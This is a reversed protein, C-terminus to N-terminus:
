VAKSKRRALPWELSREVGAAKNRGRRTVAEDPESNESESESLFAPRRLRSAQLFHAPSPRAAPSQMRTDRRKYQEQNIDVRAPLSPFVAVKLSSLHQVAHESFLNREEEQCEHWGPSRYLTTIRTGRLELACLLPWKQLWEVALGTLRTCRALKWVRLRWPGRLEGDSGVMLTQSLAQVGAHTIGTSGTDLVCLNELMGLQRLSSDDLNRSGNLNLNIVLCFSPTAPCRSLELVNSDSLALYPYSLLEPGLAGGYAKVWALWTIPNVFQLDSPSRVLASICRVAQPANLVEAISDLLSSREKVVGLCLDFLSPVYNRQADRHEAPFGTLYPPSGNDRMYVVGGKIEGGDEDLIIQDTPPRRVLVIGHTSM